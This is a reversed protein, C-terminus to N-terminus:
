SELVGACLCSDSGIERTDEWLYKIYMCIYLHM